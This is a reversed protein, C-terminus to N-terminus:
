ESLCCKDTIRGPLIDVHRMEHLPFCSLLCVFFLVFVSVRFDSIKVRSYYTWELPLSSINQGRSVKLAFIKAKLKTELWGNNESCFTDHPPARSSVVNNM